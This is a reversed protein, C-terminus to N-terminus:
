QSVPPGPQIPKGHFTGCPNQPTAPGFGPKQPITIGASGKCGPLTRWSQGPNTAQGLGFTVPETMPISLNKFLSGFGMLCWLSYRCQHGFHHEGWYFVAYGIIFIFLGIGM